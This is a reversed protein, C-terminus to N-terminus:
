CDFFHDEPVVQDYIYNGFSQERPLSTDKKRWKVESNESSSLQIM